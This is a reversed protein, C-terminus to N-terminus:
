AAHDSYIIKIDPLETFYYHVWIYLHNFLAALLAAKSLYLLGPIWLIFFGFVYMANSSYRFIGQKVFPQDRFKNPQFHDIGFARDIGFYKKVSYFLYAAPIFLLGSVLYALNINLGLSQQNSIALLIITLLRSLFLIAFGIKFIIFGKAGFLKTISGYILELRWCLLVYVQHLIPILIALLLWSSIPINYLEGRIFSDDSSVLFYLGVLLICLVAFHWQQSKLLKLEM